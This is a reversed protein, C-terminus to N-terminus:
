PIDHVDQSEDCWTTAPVSRAEFCPPKRHGSRKLLRHWRRAEIAYLAGHKLHFYLRYLIFRAQVLERRIRLRLTDQAPPRLIRPPGHLPLLRRVLRSRLPDSKGPTALVSELFLYLKTGPVDALVARRGYRDAWLKVGPPLVDLTWLDLEPSSFAGFFDTALLTCLGLATTANPQQFALTRVEKWFEDDGLRALVHHRYELLWSLRTQESRLHGLLHLAQGILQDGSSLAPFSGAECTWASLRNLREDRAGGTASADKSDLALHLEVSRVPPVKYQGELSVRLSRGSKFELTRTTSGTPVYGRAELLARGLNLDAPDILFDLDAQRRLSLDPCSDPTLTVGKLNAFRIGACQFARNIAVFERHMDANRDANDALRQELRRLAAADIADTTGSSRLCDLFYLALGSTDLWTDTRDWDQKKFRAFTRRSQESSDRFSAVIAGVLAPNSNGTWRM